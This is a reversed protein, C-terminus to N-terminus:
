ARRRGRPRRTLPGEEKTPLRGDIVFALEEGLRAPRATVVIQTVQRTPDYVAVEFDLGVEKSTIRTRVRDGPKRQAYTAANRYLTKTSQRRSHPLRRSVKVQHFWDPQYSVVYEVGHQDLGRAERNHRAM